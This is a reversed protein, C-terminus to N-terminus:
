AASQVVRDRGTNKAQYLATDTRKIMAPLDEGLTLTAAGISITVHILQGEFSFPLDAVAGRLREAAKTVGDAGIEPLLVCFEEGGIRGILDHSRLVKTFREVLETLVADGAAHGYRDNVQKFHDADLLLFSVKEAHRNARGLEKDALEMFRRRNLAGTLCDTWALQELKQEQQKLQSIDIRFGVLGGESTRREQIRLWKEDPLKQEIPDGPNNHVRIREAIWEEEQGMAEVYQGREVGKRIIESFSAGKVMLDASKAYLDRYRQNCIVLRDDKDYLVFGNPLSEMADILRRESREAHDILSRMELADMVMEALCWLSKAEEISFKRPKTDIIALTGINLGGPARLPAGAYFRIHADGTVFPNQSFKEDNAADEVIYLNDQCITHACFSIERSAEQEQIGIKAKFWQREDEILSILAVPVNFNTSALHVIREYAVEPLSDLIHYDRLKAVREIENEPLPYKRM